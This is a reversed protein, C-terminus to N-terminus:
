SKAERLNLERGDIQTEGIKFITKRAGTPVIGVLQLVSTSVGDGARIMQNRETVAGYM